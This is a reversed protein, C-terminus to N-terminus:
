LRLPLGLGGNFSRVQLNCLRLECFRDVKFLAEVPRDTRIPHCIGNRYQNLTFRSIQASGREYLIQIKAKFNEFINGHDKLIIGKSVQCIFVGGNKLDYQILSELDFVPFIICQM